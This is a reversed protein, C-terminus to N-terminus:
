KEGVKAHGVREGTHPSPHSIPSCRTALVGMKERRRGTWESEIEVTGDVGTAYHRFSSWAWDEPLGCLEREVPNQHIYDLVAAHGRHDKVLSDHYRPQWFRLQDARRFKRSVLQKLMQMAISLKKCAPESVLLHVHEPMVVYGYIRVEYWRRIRELEIEFQTAASASHLFPQRRYCSFTIFHTCGSQHYGKLGSTM